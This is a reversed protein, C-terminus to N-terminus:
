NILDTLVQRMLDPVAQTLLEKIYATPDVHNPDAAM